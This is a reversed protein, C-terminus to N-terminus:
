GMSQTLDLIWTMDIVPFCAPKKLVKMVMARLSPLFVLLKKKEEKKEQRELRLMKKTKESRNWVHEM